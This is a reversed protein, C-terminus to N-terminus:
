TPDRPSPSTYLLCIKNLKLKERIDAEYFDIKQDTIKEIIELNKRRSNSLNDLIVVGYNQKILEVVAHSGLYGLGGTVLINM